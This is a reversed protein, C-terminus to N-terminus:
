PTVLPKSFFEFDVADAEAQTATAFRNFHRKTERMWDFVCGGFADIKLGVFHGDCNGANVFLFNTLNGGFNTRQLLGSGYLPLPILYTSSTIRRLAPFAPFFYHVGCKACFTSASFNMASGLAWAEADVDAILVDSGLNDIVVLARSENISGGNAAFAM